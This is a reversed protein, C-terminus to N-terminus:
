GGIGYKQQWKAKYRELDKAVPFVEEGTAPVNTKDVIERKIPDETLAQKASIPTGDAFNAALQDLAMLGEKGNDNEVVIVKGERILPLVSPIAFFSYTVANSKAAQIAPALASGGFDCCSFFGKINPHANLMDKGAKTSDDFINILDVDHSGVIKLGKAKAEDAFVKNRIGVGYFQPLRLEGVEAGAGLDKAMRASLLKSNEGEDATFSEKVYPSPTGVFGVALVPIKKDAAARLAQEVPPPELFVGIIADVNSDVLSQMGAQMKAPDGLGDVVKVDWGLAKAGEKTANIVRTQIEAPGQSAFIGITKKELKGSGGGSGGSGSGSSSSNGSSGCGTAVAAAILCFVLLLPLLGRNRQQV